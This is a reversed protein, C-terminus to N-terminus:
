CCSKSLNFETISKSLAARIILRHYIESGEPVFTFAPMTQGISIQYSFNVDPVKLTYTQIGASNPKHTMLEEPTLFKQLLGVIRTLSNWDADIAGKKATEIKEGKLPSM